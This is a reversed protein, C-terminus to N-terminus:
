IGMDEKGASTVKVVRVRRGRCKDNAKTLAKRLNYSIYVEEIEGDRSIEARYYPYSKPNAQIETDLYTVVVHRVTTM